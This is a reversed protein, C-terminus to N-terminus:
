AGCQEWAIVQLHTDLSLAMSFVCLSVQAEPLGLGLMEVSRNKRSGEETCGSLICLSLRLRATAAAYRRLRCGAQEMRRICCVGVQRLGKNESARNSHLGWHM